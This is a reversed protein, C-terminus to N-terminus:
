REEVADQKEAESLAANLKDFEHKAADLKERLVDVDENIEVSQVGSSPRRRPTIQNDLNRFDAAKTSAELPEDGSPVAEDTLAAM